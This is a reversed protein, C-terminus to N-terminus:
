KKSTKNKLIKEGVVVTIKHVVKITKPSILTPIYRTDFSTSKESMREYKITLKKMKVFGSLIKSYECWQNLEHEAIKTIYKKRLNTFVREDNKRKRAPNNEPIVVPNKWGM